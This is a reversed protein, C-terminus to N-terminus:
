KNLNFKHIIINKLAGIGRHNGDKFSFTECCISWIFLEGWAYPFNGRHGRPILYVEYTRNTSGTILSGALM